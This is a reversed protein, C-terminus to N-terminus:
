LIISKAVVNGYPIPLEVETPEESLTNNMMTMIVLKKEEEEEAEVVESVLQMQLSFGTLFM